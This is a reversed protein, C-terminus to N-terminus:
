TTDELVEQAHGEPSVNEYVAAIDGSEDVVYSNRFAIEHTQGRIEREGYSEYASAVEGDVDSLLPFPLEEAQKFAELEEPPDTSIGLVQIGADEFAAWNDRFSQAETTCGPTRAKPYFYLVVTQGEFASLSVPEGSQDPLEFDPASQGTELM